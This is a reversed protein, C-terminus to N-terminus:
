LAPLCAVGLDDGEERGLVDEDVRHAAAGGRPRADAHVELVDGLVLARGLLRRIRVVIGGDLPGAASSPFLRRPAGRRAALDDSHVGAVVRSSCVSAWSRLWAQRSGAASAVTATFTTPEGYVSPNPSSALTTTTPAKEVVQSVTASAPEHFGDGAYEVKISHTGANLSSTTYSAVGGDLTRTELLTPGDYFSVAGAPTELGSVSSLTATFTVSESFTSPNSSSTFDVITGDLKVVQDVVNSTSGNFDASGV